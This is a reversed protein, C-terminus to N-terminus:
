IPKNLNKIIFANILVGAKVCSMQEKSLVKGTNKIYSFSMVKKLYFLPDLRLNLSSM